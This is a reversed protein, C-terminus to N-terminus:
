LGAQKPAARLKPSPAPERSQNGCRERVAVTDQRMQAALGWRTGRGRGVQGTPMGDGEKGKARAKGVGGVGADKKRKGAGGAGAM